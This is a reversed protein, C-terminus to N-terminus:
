EDDNDETQIDSSNRRTSKIFTIIVSIMGSAGLFASSLAGVANPVKWVIIVAAVICMISLIFAFFVGLASDRSETKMMKNQMDHRHEQEREAMAVIRDATGPLIQEYGSLIKPHPLPGSYREMVERTIFSTMKGFEKQEEEDLEDLEPLDDLEEKPDSKAQVKTGHSTLENQKENQEKESTHESM